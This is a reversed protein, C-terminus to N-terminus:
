SGRSPFPINLTVTTGTESPNVAVDVGYPDLLRKVAYLGFGLHREEVYQPSDSKRWGSSFLGFWGEVDQGPNIGCGTDSVVLRVATNELGSEITLQKQPSDKMAMVANKLIHVLAPILHRGLIKVLPLDKALRLDVDVQHKYFLDARFTEALKSVILNVDVESENREIEHLIMFSRLMNTLDTIQAGLQHLRKGQKEHLANVEMPVPSNDACRSAIQEQGRVLVEVLMSMNQLPGNINHILGQVFGGLHNWRDKQLLADICQELPAANGFGPVEVDLPKQRKTSM